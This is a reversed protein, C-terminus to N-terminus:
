CRQVETYGGVQLIYTICAYGEPTRWFRLGGVVPVHAVATVQGETPHICLHMFGRLARSPCFHCQVITWYAAGLISAPLLARLGQVQRQDGTWLYEFSDSGALQSCMLVDLPCIVM